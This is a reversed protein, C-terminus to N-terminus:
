QTPGLGYPKAWSLGELTDEKPAYECGVWGDYGLGDIVDFMFPMNVEGFQPEHRGPLSSFQIHRILDLNRRLGEALNGEMIQMHYLDYQLFINDGGVAEIIRRTHTTNTHLYGPADQLNLPELLLAVGKGKAVEGAVRLNEVFVEECAVAPVDDPVVGALLHMMTAGLGNAYELTLDLSERFEGERGPLAAMGKEGADSDGPPSNLLLMELGSDDLWQRVSALPYNYPRLFEVARFGVDRAAAFRAPAELEPFMTSLNAAFKPM